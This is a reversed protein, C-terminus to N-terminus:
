DQRVKFYNSYDEPLVADIDRLYAELAKITAHGTILMLKSKADHPTTNKVMERYLISIFTHRFSYLGYDKGLGFNDKVKKFKKTFYDRKSNEATDWEGGIANPTFLFDGNNLKALDPLQNLLIEPIIKTKVPKNKARVYIKKDKIDLDGVKLRCVEIPRLFNYSVFQIFLYLVEDNQRLYDFIKKIENPKYSKNREPIAKLVNIEKVFNRQIVDNDMLTQFFSGLDTRTNNRNRPSSDQLVDNLYQIVTKKDINTICEKLKIKKEKQIWIKFRNIRSKYRTYSTQNLVKKKTELVLKFAKDVTLVIKPKEAKPKVSVKQIENKSEQNEDSDKGLIESEIFAEIDSNDGYPNYGKRLIIELAESITQLVHLRREKDDYINAGGKINTQRSLKGTEPNRYSYYVYWKKSLAEKKKKSSLKAWTNLDVGGTYIKPKSYDMSMDFDHVRAHVRQLLLFFSQM